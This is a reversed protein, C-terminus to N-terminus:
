CCRSSARHRVHRDGRADRRIQILVQDTERMGLPAVAGRQDLLRQAAEDCGLMPEEDGDIRPEAIDLSAPHDGV